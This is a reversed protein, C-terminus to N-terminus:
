YPYSEEPRRGPTEPRYCPIQFILVALFDIDQLPRSIAKNQIIMNVIKFFIIIWIKIKTKESHHTLKEKKGPYSESKTEWLRVGPAFIM